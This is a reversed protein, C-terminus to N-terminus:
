RLTKKMRRLGRIRRCQLFFPAHRVAVTQFGCREYFRLGRDNDIEVDLCIASDGALYADKEVSEILKAGIGRSRYDPHVALVGVYSEGQAIPLSCMHFMVTLPWLMLSHFAGIQDLLAMSVTDELEADQGSFHVTVIGVPQSAENEADNNQPITAVYSFRHSFVSSDSKCLKEIVRSVNKEGGFMTTMLNSGSYLTLQALIDAEAKLAPRISITQSNFNM